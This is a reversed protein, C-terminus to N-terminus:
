EGGLMSSLTKSNAHNLADERTVEGDEVLQKLHQDFTICGDKRHTEIMAPLQAWKGSRILHSASSVIRMVEMAPRRGQGNAKPVLKQAIVGQLTFSLQSCIEQTREQPFIDVLRTIAGRTDRTHMTTIVLHGTEAATIALSATEPDRVEGVFI